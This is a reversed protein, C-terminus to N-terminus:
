FRFEMSDTLKLTAGSLVAGQVYIPQGALSSLDPVRIGRYGRNDGTLTFEPILLEPPVLIDGWPTPVPTPLRSAGIWSAVRDGTTGVVGITISGGIAQNSVAAVNISPAPTADYVIRSINTAGRDFPFVSHLVYLNGDPGDLVDFIPGPFRHFVSVGIVMTGAANLSLRTLDGFIWDAVFWGGRYQPPYRQGSYFACGTLATPPVTWLPDETSPDPVPENGEYLDWGYTAGVLIRNVEDVAAAGNETAYLQGTFPHVALGFVNRNGYSWNYEGGVVTKFPNDSPIAGDRLMRLIKGHPNGLMRAFPGWMADGRAVFLSGDRAFRLPGGVHGSGIVIRPGIVTLNTGVGGAETYHGIRAEANPDATTYHVYVRRDDLFLPSVAIGITGVESFETGSSPVTAWTGGLVGNQVVRLRGNLREAVFLRGDPAFAMAVAKDLGATVTEIRFGAPQGAIGTALLLVLLAVRSSRM